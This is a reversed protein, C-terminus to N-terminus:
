QIRLKMAPVRYFPRAPDLREASRPLLRETWSRAALRIRVPTVVM